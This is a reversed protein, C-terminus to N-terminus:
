PTSCILVAFYACFTLSNQPWNNLCQLHQLQRFLLCAKERFIIGFFLTSKQRHSHSPMGCLLTFIISGGQRGDMKKSLWLEKKAFNSICWTTSLCAIPGLKSEIEEFHYLYGAYCVLLGKIPENLKLSMSTRIFNCYQHVGM